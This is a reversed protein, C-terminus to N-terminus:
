KLISVFYFRDSSVFFFHSSIKLNAFVHDHSVRLLTLLDPTLLAGVDGLRCLGQHLEGCFVCVSICVHEDGGPMKFVDPKTSMQCQHPYM